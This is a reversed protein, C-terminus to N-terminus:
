RRKKTPNAPPLMRMRREALPLLIRATTGRGPDSELMLEGGHERVIRRVIFLGLGSGKDKTTFYPDFIRTVHEPAIGCGNDAFSILVHTDSRGTAIRLIGGRGMAQLANKILNYFAQKLADADASVLPLSKMLDTEVLVDRDEIEPHLFAISEEVLANIRTPQRKVQGPRVARLFQDIITDLRAIEARAVRASEVLKHAQADKMKKLDREILQLHIHLSNLPNGLEHAVGAALLVLANLRGSEVAERTQERTSTLDHFIIACAPPTSEIPVLYFNLLRQEPYFIELDRSVVRRERLIAPWDLDKLYFAVNKGLADEGMGLLPQLSHNLYLIKGKPDIVLVGEKLTNFITELFGKEQALQQLYHQLDEPGVRNIRNLLKDLFAHKV